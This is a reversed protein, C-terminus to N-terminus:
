ERGHAVCNVFVFKISFVCHFRGSSTPTSVRKVNLVVNKGVWNRVFKTLFNLIPFGIVDASSNKM